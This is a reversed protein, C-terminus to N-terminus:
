RREEKPNTLKNIREEENADLASKQKESSRKKIIVVVTILAFIALMGPLFWLLFTAANVPPRYLVFDSYRAVLFDTIENDTKGSIIMDYVEKRLDKALASNSDSLSQNQCVLCRLQDILNKYRVEQEADTFVVPDIAARVNEQILFAQTFVVVLMVLVFKQIAQM